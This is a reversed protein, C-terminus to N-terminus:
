AAVLLNGTLAISNSTAFCEKKVCYLFQPNFYKFFGLSSVSGLYM